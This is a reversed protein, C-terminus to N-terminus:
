APEALLCVTGATTRTVVLLGLAGPGPLRLQRRMRLPDVDVGRCKVVVDGLDRERLAARLARTATPLEEVVRFARGFGPGPHRDYSVWPLDPHLLSGQTRLALAGVLGARVLADDPELLFGGLPGVPPAPDEDGAASLTPVAGPGAHRHPAPDRPPAVGPEALGAFWVCAEVLTGDM